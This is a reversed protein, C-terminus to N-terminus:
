KTERDHKSTDTRSEMDELLVFRGDDLKVDLALGQSQLGSRWFPSVGFWVALKALFPRHKAKQKRLPDELIGEWRYVPRARISSDDYDTGAGTGLTSPQMLTEVDIEEM